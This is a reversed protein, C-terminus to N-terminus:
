RKSTWEGAGKRASPSAPRSEECSESSWCAASCCLICYEERKYGGTKMRVVHYQHGCLRGSCWEEVPVEELCWRCTTWGRRVALTYLTRRRTVEQFEDDGVLCCEWAWQTTYVEDGGTVSEGNDIITYVQASFCEEMMEALDEAVAEVLVMDRRGTHDDRVLEDELVYLNQLLCLVTAERWM